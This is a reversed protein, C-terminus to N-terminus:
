VNSKERNSTKNFQNSISHTISVSDSLSLSNVQRLALKNTSVRLDRKHLFCNSKECITVTQTVVESSFSYSLCFGKSLGLLAYSGEDFKLCCPACSLTWREFSTANHFNFIFWVSTNTKSFDSQNAWLLRPCTRVWVWDTVIGILLSKLNPLWSANHSV